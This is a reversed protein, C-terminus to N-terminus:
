YGSLYPDLWRIAIVVRSTSADVVEDSSFNTAFPFSGASFSIVCPINRQIVVQQEPVNVGFLNDM